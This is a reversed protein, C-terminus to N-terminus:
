IVIATDKNLKELVDNKFEVRGVPNKLDYDYVVGTKDYIWYKKESSYEPKEGEKTLLKVAKIERAKIRITKSSINNSGNNIKMDDNKNEKYAPGVYKEFLSDQNFQFCKYDNSITNHNKNLACDVAVEKIADLFSQILRSKSRALDEIKQDTTLKFGERVSKYRYIDIHRDKLPLNKHACQRKARGIVQENRVENWYPELIHVQRVNM